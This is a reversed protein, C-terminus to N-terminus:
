SPGSRIPIDADPKPRGASLQSEQEELRKKLEIMKLERDVTISQFKELEKNKEELENTRKKVQAELEGQQKRLFEEKEAYYNIKQSFEQPTLKLEAAMRAYVDTLQQSEDKEFLSKKLVAEKASASGISNALTKEMVNQLNVLENLTIQDKGLLGSEKLCGAILRQTEPINFYAGFFQNMIEKKKSLDVSVKQDSSINEELFHVKKLINYFNAAIEKEEASQSFFWSGFIYFGVNFIMTFLVVGALPDLMDAGFLHEPRLFKLGLPGDTLISLSLWGSKIFAPFLSTYGWVIFGATMGMIAGMKNGRPWYLAGLIAPAFQLVAAFSIMGIKILIYSSGIKLEFLYAISLILTILVWRLVLLHRRLINFIQFKDVLPLILHNSVMTTITMGSIIIMSTGAALGGLFVFFSLWTSNEALPLMLIFNDALKPDFGHLLGSLAIPVVFLTILIFYLSLMWLAPRIHKENTNEVVAMHFQRPLFIIASMSLILYAMFLSASPNAARQSALLAPNSAIKAFIDSFGNNVFYVAFIGAALFALLKIVSQIVIVMVLGPHKETQGLRRLGFVITFVILAGLIILDIPGGGQATLGAGTTIFAFSNFIAKLQLSLYPVIGIFAITSAIAAVAISKGYRASIFDAISTINYEHRIRVLKRLLSWWFIFFLSPGIYVAIFLMATSAALGINGYYTWATCYVALALAYVVANDTLNKGQASKKEVFYAVSFLIILYIITIGIVIASNITIM